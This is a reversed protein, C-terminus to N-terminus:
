GAAAELDLLLRKAELGGAYGTLAGGTGIIRHCPVIVPLPNRGNAAGVARCAAPTCVVAAIESYTATRGYGVRSVADWVRRQFETGRPALPIDFERLDGSFYARLQAAADRLLGDDSAPAQGGGGPALGGFRVASLGAANRELLLTGIPTDVSLIGAISGNSPPERSPKRPALATAPTSSTV